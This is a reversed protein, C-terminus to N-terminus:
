RHCIHWIFAHARNATSLSGYSIEILDFIAHHVTIVTQWSRKRHKKEHLNDVLSLMIERTLLCKLIKNKSQLNYEGKLSTCDEQRQFNKSQKKWM